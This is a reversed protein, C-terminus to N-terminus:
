SHPIQYISNSLEITVRGDRQVRDLERRMKCSLGYKIKSDNPNVLLVDFVNKGEKGALAEGKFTLAVAREFDRWGPLSAEQNLLMGTGDQYTSLLLRLTLLENPSPNKDLFALSM